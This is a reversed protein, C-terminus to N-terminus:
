TTCFRRCCPVSSWHRRIAQAKAFSMRKRPESDDPQRCSEWTALASLKGLDKGELWQFDHDQCHHESRVDRFLKRLAVYDPREKFDLNRATHLYNKFAPPFGAALDSLDTTEKKEDM